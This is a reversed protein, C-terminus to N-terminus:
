KISRNLSGYRNQHFSKLILRLIVFTYWHNYIPDYFFDCKLTLFSSSKSPFVKIIYILYSLFNISLFSKNIFIFGTVRKFNNKFNFHMFLTGRVIHIGFMLGFWILQVDFGCDSYGCSIEWPKYAWSSRTMSSVGIIWAWLVTWSDEFRSSMCNWRLMDRGRPKPPWFCGWCWGPTCWCCWWWCDATGTGGRLSLMVASRLMIARRCRTLTLKQTSSHYSQNRLLSQANNNHGSGESYSSIINLQQKLFSNLKNINWHHSTTHIYTYFSSTSLVPSNNYM